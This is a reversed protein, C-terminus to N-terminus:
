DRFLRFRGGARARGPEIELGLEDLSAPENNQLVFMVQFLPHRSTDRTPKVTDVVRDLTLEQHEYPMSRSKACAACWWERFGPDGSLHARLVVMNIFYGILPETEPRMRNAVPSGVAVDDQGSYRALLVQFAALLTMFPTVGERRCFERVAASLEPSLNARCRRAAPHHPDGSASSRHALGVAPPRCATQELLEAVAGVGRGQLFQRQWIAFDAYQIPLEALPSPRGARYAAYLVALERTMIGLSWGDYIMHHAAALLVHENESLKLLTIRILPGKQLDIPRRTERVIWGELAAQREAEPLGSLDVLPLPQLDPPDIVAIPRGDVEPFRTRVAEHRRRIEQLARELVPVDLPGRLRLTPYATYTPQDRELQDLFWLAEQTFSPPLQGDRPRLLFRRAALRRGTAAFPSSESPWNPSPPRSSCTACPCSSTCGAPSARCSKPRWCLIGEWRLSVTTFAWAIWTCCRGGSTPWCNRTPLGRRCTRASRIASISRRAAPGQLRDKRQLEASDGGLARFRRPDHLGASERRSVDAFRGCEAAPGWQGRRIGRGTKGGNPDDLAVVVASRVGAHRRLASEIEGLEIRFGRIKVQHDTRGIFELRGDARWRVVDGTKYIRGEGSWGETPARLPNPHPHGANSAEGDSGEGGAGRGFPSPLFREDTLEPRNLYGRALSAGGIYLEGPVGVPVPQRWRDLVYARYNAVRSASRYAITVM